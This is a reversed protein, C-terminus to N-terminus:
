ETVANKNGVDKDDDHGGQGTGSYAIESQGGHGTFGGQGGDGNKGTHPNPYAGGDSEGGGGDSGSGPGGSRAGPDTNVGDPAGKNDDGGSVPTEVKDAM